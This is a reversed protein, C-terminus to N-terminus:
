EINQVQERFKELETKLFVVEHSIAANNAKSGITNIERNMEQALFDLTRGVPEDKKVYEYFKKFHSDLRALEESIDCRDAFLVTEKLLREEDEPKIQLGAKKIKEFLQEKYKSVVQPAKEKIKDVAKRMNQIRLKLDNELHKGEKGRMELFNKLAKDILKKLEKWQKESDIEFQRSELVGPARIILELNLSNNLGLEKALNKLEKAYAKALEYNILKSKAKNKVADVTIRVTIQGRSVFKGIHERILAESVSLESPLIIQIESQRRNVSSIEVVVRYYNFQKEARGYGTMSNM